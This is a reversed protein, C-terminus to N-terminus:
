KLHKKYLLFFYIVIECYWFCFLFIDKKIQNLIVWRHLKSKIASCRKKFSLYDNAGNDLLAFKYIGALAYYNLIKDTNKIKQKLLLSKLLTLRILYYQFDKYYAKQNLSNNERHYYNYLYEKVLFVRKVFKFYTFNFFVDEGQRMNEDFQLANETIINKKYAINCVSFLLPFIKEFDDQINEKLFIEDIIIGKKIKQSFVNYFSCIAVDYDKKILPESLKKVYNVDVTDDADVFLLINGKSSLIGLNRASSVGGNKKQKVIVRKDKKALECCIKYSADESGDDVLIVELNDYTQNLISEVCKKLYNESNYVPVIISILDSM